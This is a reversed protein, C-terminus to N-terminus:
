ASERLSTDAALSSTGPLLDYGPYRYVSKDVMYSLAPRTWPLFPEIVWIGIKDIGTLEINLRLIIVYGM